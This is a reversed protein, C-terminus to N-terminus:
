HMGHGVLDFVLFRVGPSSDGGAISALIELHEVTGVLSLARAGAARAAIDKTALAAVADTSDM